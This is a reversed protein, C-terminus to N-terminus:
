GGGKRTLEITGDAGVAGGTTNRYRLTITDGAKASFTVPEVNLRGTLVGATGGASVPSEQQVEDSGSNITAVMGVATARHLIEVMCDYPVRQYKWTNGTVELPTDTAGAAVSRSWSFFAM